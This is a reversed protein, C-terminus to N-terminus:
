NTLCDCYYIPKLSRNHIDTKLYFVGESRYPYKTISRANSTNAEITYINNGEVRDLLGVHHGWSNKFVIVSGKPIDALQKITLLAFSKPNRCYTYFNYARPSFKIKHDIGTQKYWYNIALGCYPSQLSLKETETSNWYKVYKQTKGTNDKGEIM